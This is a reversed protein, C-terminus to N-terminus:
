HPEGRRPVLEGEVGAESLITRMAGAAEPREYAGAYVQHVTDGDAVLRLIYAPIGHENLEAEARRAEAETGHVSLRYGLSAPRVDWESSSDKVGSETLEGMLERASEPTPLAGAFLRYYVRGRVPTPAILFLVTGNDVLQMHQLADALSVYSAVLVSYGLEEGGAAVKATSMAAEGGAETPTAPSGADSPLSEVRAADAPPPTERRDAAGAAGAAIFRALVWWGGLLFVLAGAAIVIRAVPLSRPMRHRRWRIPAPQATGGGGSVAAARDDQRPLPVPATPGGIEVEVDFWESPLGARDPPAVLLLTGQAARVREILARMARRPLAPSAPFSSSTSAPGFSSPEAAGSPLYLFRGGSVRHVLDTLGARGTLLDTLGPAGVTGLGEDMVRGPAAVGVVLTRRRAAGVGKALALVAPYLGAPDDAVVAVIRADDPLWSAAGGVGERKSAM